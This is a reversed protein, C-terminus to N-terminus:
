DIRCLRANSQFIYIFSSVVRIGLRVNRNFTMWEDPALSISHCQNPSPKTRAMSPFRPSRIDPDEMWPLKPLERERERGADERMASGKMTSSLSGTQNMPFRFPVGVVIVRIYALTRNNYIKMREDNSGTRSWKRSFITEGCQRPVMISRHDNSAGTYVQARSHTDSENILTVLLYLYKIYVYVVSLLFTSILLHFVSPQLVTFKNTIGREM